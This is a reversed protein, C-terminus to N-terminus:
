AVNDRTAACEPARWVRGLNGHTRVVASRRFEATSELGAQPMVAGLYSLQRGTEQGTLIGRQVAVIRLDSVTIGVAGVKEALERALPVLREINRANKAATADRAELGVQTASRTGEHRPPAVPADAFMPLGEVGVTHPDHWSRRTM